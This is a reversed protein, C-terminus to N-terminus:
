SSSILDRRAREGTRWEWWRRGAMLEEGGDRADAAAYPHKWRKRSAEVVTGALLPHESRARLRVIASRQRGIAPCLDAAKLLIAHSRPVKLQALRILKNGIWKHLGLLRLIAHWAIVSVSGSPLPSSSTCVLKERKRSRSNLLCM